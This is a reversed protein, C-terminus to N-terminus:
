SAKQADFRNPIDNKKGDENQVTTEEDNKAISVCRVNNSPLCINIHTSSTAYGWALMSSLLVAGVHSLM